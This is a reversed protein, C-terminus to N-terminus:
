EANVGLSLRYVGDKKKVQSYRTSDAAWTDVQNFVRKVQTTQLSENRATELRRRVEGAHLLVRAGNADNKLQGWDALNHLLLEAREKTASVDDVVTAVGDKVVKAIKDDGPVSDLLDVGTEEAVHNMQRRIRAVDRKVSQHNTIQKERIADIQESQVRDVLPDTSDAREEVSEVVTPSPQEGFLFQYLAESEDRSNDLMLGIPHNGIWLNAPNGGNGRFEVTPREHIRRVHAVAAHAANEACERADREADLEDQLRENEAELDAVRQELRETKSRQRDLGDELDRVRDLVRQLTHTDTAQRELDPTSM